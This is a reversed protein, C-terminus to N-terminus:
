LAPDMVRPSQTFTHMAFTLAHAITHASVRWLDGISTVYIVLYSLICFLFCTGIPPPIVFTLQYSNCAVIGRHPRQVVREQGHPMEILIFSVKFVSYM